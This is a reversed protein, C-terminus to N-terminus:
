EYDVKFNRERHFLRKKRPPIVKTRYQKDLSFIKAVVEAQMNKRSINTSACCTSNGSRLQDTKNENM